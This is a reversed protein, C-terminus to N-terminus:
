HGHTLLSDQNATTTVELRQQPEPGPVILLSCDTCLTTCLRSVLWGGFCVDITPTEVICHDGQAASSVHEFERLQGLDVVGLLSTLTIMNLDRTVLHRLHPM